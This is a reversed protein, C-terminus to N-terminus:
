KGVEGGSEMKRYNNRAVIIGKEKKDKGENLVALNLTKKTRGVLKGEKYGCWM